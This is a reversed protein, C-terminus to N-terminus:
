KKDQDFLGSYCFYDNVKSILNVSGELLDCINSKLADVKLEMKERQLCYTSWNM